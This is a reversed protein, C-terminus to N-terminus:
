IQTSFISKVRTFDDIPLRQGLGVRSTAPLKAKRTLEVRMELAKLGISLVDFVPVDGPLRTLGAVAAICSLGASALIISNAGQEVLVRGQKEIEAALVAPETFGRTFAELSDIQISRVGSCRSRMGNADVIMEVAEVWPREQVTIVGFKLGYECALHMSAAFPGVVPIDSVSRGQIVGPDGSCAVMVGDFGDASAEAFRHVVDLSNIFYPYAYITDPARRLRAYRHTIETGDAKINQFIGDILGTYAESGREGNIHIICLKM